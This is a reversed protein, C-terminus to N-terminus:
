NRGLGRRLQERAQAFALRRRREGAEAKAASAAEAGDPGADLEALREEVMMRLLKLAIGDESEPNPYRQAGPCRGPAALCRRRRRCAASHCTLIRLAWRTERALEAKERWDAGWRYAQWSEAM